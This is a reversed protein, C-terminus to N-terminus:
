QYNNPSLINLVIKYSTNTPSLINLDIKYSTTTPSLINLDIKYSTNTPSLINLVIKYSTNTPSLINLDIKYSTTTPSLINLDIKYHDIQNSSESLAVINTFGNAPTHGNEPTHGNVKEESKEKKEYKGKHVVGFRLPKRIREPLFSLPFVIDFVPCILRPDVDSAKKAGTIFSVILGIAICTLVATTSYWMYSLTYLHYAPVSTDVTSAATSNLKSLMESSFATVNCNTVFRLAKETPPKVVAAGVGIWFMFILSGFLGSYAGWKNAWPFFMGLSFVGLLPGGIMGFLSLAAQLINGLQSAVYTLGLCVLGFILAIIQSFLRARSERLDKAFYARIVDELICASISNLGSSITSLAGSFLGAVFLGPLGIVDGLIDMVYMPIIQNVDDVFGSKLPDCNEYFASMYLGIFCCLYLILCLGPFNFWIAMQAKSLSPCTVARQVQAQNVGFIAVWTFYAGITLSWVSHRVAPDPNFDTFYIRNTREASTWTQNFGGGVIDGKILIVVLSAIMMFIQFSDTWLVAKMGGFATYLTCVIGVSIVSGWLTFGTVANLALSPAYLVIAMYLIMQLVFTMSAATRVGRSFRKELYEYASTVGLHYFIPIYVHAAGAIVLLYGLGIWFYMTTYNYMEAPTGLLTIASMFSALLSLGVPIPSMNKGALLFHNMSKNRRDKIAFYLGIAASIFLIAGFIVYDLWTFTKLHGTNFSYDGEFIPQRMQQSAPAFTAAPVASM